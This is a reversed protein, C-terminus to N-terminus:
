SAACHLGASHHVFSDVAHEPGEVHGAVPGDPENRVRGALDLRNAEREAYARFSAGPVRGTVTPDVATRDHQLM